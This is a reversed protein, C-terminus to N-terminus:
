MPFVSPRTDVHTIGVQLRREATHGLARGFKPSFSSWHAIITQSHDVNVTKCTYTSTHHPVGTGYTIIPAKGHM